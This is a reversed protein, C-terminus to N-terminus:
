KSINNTSDNIRLETPLILREQSYQVAPSTLKKILHKAALNGLAFGDHYLFTIQPDLIQPLYGDSIGIVSCQEPIKIKMKKLAPIVGALIEDSMAFIADPQFDPFVQEVCAWTSFTNEVFKHEAIVEKGAIHKEVTTMFGELRKHTIMMNPNGFLGLIRKCGTEILYNICLETAQKDEIIVEDFATNDLIKDMLVVPIGADKLDNLHDLHETENTLSILLGEVGYENCITVNELEQEFSEGSQLVLLRYGGKQVADSIGKIVSPVFYMNAEPIILGITNSKQKRLQVALMNPHYHLDQALQKIKTRLALGIDPHDRLARSVTSVNVGVIVAIDKITARKM